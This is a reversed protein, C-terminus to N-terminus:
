AQYIRARNSVVSCNLQHTICIQEHVGVFCKLTDTTVVSQGYASPVAKSKVIGFTISDVNRGNCDTSWHM